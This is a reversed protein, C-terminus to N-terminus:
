KVIMKKTVTEKGAEVTYFYVGSSLNSVNIQMENVGAQLRSAPMTQVTQGMMNTVTVNVTAAEALTVNFRAVSNAPNPMTQSVTVFEQKAVPADNIGVHTFDAQNYKFDQIYKYQAPLDITEFQQYTFPITYNGTGDEITENSMIFFYAQFMGESGWTVNNPKDAGNENGTAANLVLDYGRVWIDPATNEASVTTDTDLWAVFM